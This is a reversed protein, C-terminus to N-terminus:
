LISPPVTPEAYERVIPIEIPPGPDGDRDEERTCADLGLHNHVERKVQSASQSELVAVPEGQGCPLSPTLHNDGATSANGDLEWVSGPISGDVEVEQPVGTVIDPQPSGETTETELDIRLVPPSDPSVEVGEDSAIGEELEDDRTRKRAGEALSSPGRKQRITERRTIKKEKLEKKKEKERLAEKKKEEEEKKGKREEKKRREEEKKESEKEKKKEEREKEKKEKEEKRMRELGEEIEKDTRRKEERRREEKREKEREIEREREIAQQRRREEFARRDMERAYNNTVTRSQPCTYTRHDLAGCHRCEILRGQVQVLISQTIKGPVTIYHPILAEQVVTAFHWQDARNRSRQLGIPPIGARELLTGVWEVTASPAVFSLTCRLERRSVEEVVM